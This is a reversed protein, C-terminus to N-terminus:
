GRSGSVLARCLFASVGCGVAAITAGVTLLALATVGSAEDAWNGALVRVHDLLILAAVFATFVLAGFAFVFRLYMGELWYEHQREDSATVLGGM